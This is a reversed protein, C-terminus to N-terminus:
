ARDAAEPWPHFLEQSAVLELQGDAAEMLAAEVASADTTRVLYDATVLHTFQRDGSLLPLHEMRHQVRDWVPYPIKATLRLSPTMMVMGAADVGAVCGKSYARVLGGAGLLVGGFYRVVVVCCNVLERQKLVEMMPQGATGSPEGDDSYRMIGANEGIVYAFCHHSAGRHEARIRALMDLAQEEQDVPQAIGIFRSKNVVFEEQGLAKLTRYPKLSM